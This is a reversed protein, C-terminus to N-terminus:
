PKVGRPISWFMLDIKACYLLFSKHLIDYNGENKWQKGISILLNVDDDHQAVPM